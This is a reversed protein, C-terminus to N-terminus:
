KQRSQEQKRRYVKSSVGIHRVIEEKGSVVLRVHGLGNGEALRKDVVRRNRAGSLVTQDGQDHGDSGVLGCLLIPPHAEALDDLLHVAAAWGLALKKSLGVEEGLSELRNGLSTIEKKGIDVLDLGVSSKKGADAVDEAAAGFLRIAVAEFFSSSSNPSRVM